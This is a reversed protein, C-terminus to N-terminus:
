NWRDDIVVVVKRRPPWLRGGQRGFIADPVVREGRSDGRRGFLAGPARGVDRSRRGLFGDVARAEAGAAVFVFAGILFLMPSTFLGAIMMGVAAVRGVKAAIETGRGLGVRSALVSRLVRGGDMPFAPLMNFAAIMLNAWALGGIFSTPSWAGTLAALTFLSGALVFSVLPGALAVWFEERPRLVQGDLQAVGGLPSLVIQRTPVGFVRAMLAHGIEHLLVSAFVAVMFLVALAAAVATGGQAIASYAAWALVLVFTFHVRTEIGFFRGLSWSWASMGAVM